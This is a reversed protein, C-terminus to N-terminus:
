KASLNASLLPYVCEKGVRREESRYLATILCVAAPALVLLAVLTTALLPPGLLLNTAALATVVLPAALGALALGVAAAVVRWRVRDGPEASPFAAALAPAPDQHPEVMWDFLSDPPGPLG